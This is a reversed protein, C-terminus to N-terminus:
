RKEHGVGAKKYFVYTYSGSVATAGAELAADVEAQDRILGGAVIPFPLKEKLEKIVRPMLAPMAEVADPKTKLCAEISKNLAHSDILFIRQVTKLGLKKAHNIAQTKTSIIGDPQIVEAIYTMGEISQAQVGSILDVHLYVEKNKQQLRFVREPLDLMTGNLLFVTKFPSNMCEEHNSWDTLATIHHEKFM